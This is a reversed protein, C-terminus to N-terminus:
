FFVNLSCRCFIHKLKKTEDKTKVRSLKVAFLSSPIRAPRETTWNWANPNFEVRGSQERRESDFPYLRLISSFRMRTIEQRTLIWHQQISAIKEQAKMLKLKWCQHHSSHIKNILDIAHFNAITGHWYTSTLGTLTNPAFIFEVNGNVRWGSDLRFVSLSEFPLDFHAM